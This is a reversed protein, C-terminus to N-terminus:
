SEKPPPWERNLRQYFPRLGRNALVGGRVQPNTWYIHDLQTFLEESLNVMSAIREAAAGADVYNGAEALAQLLGSVVDDGLGPQEYVWSSVIDAVKEPELSAASHWQANGTFGNPDAGFRIVYLPVRRGLAWGVEQNCWASDNFEPHVLAVFADMTRLSWEIQKQWPKSITMTNHAVFGHIGAVALRDAVKGVFEKHVAAHSLFLRVYGSKWNGDDAASEIAGEIEEQSIEFVLAYMEILQQESVGSIIDSIGPGNYDDTLYELNFETFLLNIKQASWEQAGLRDVLQSKLRFRDARSLTM